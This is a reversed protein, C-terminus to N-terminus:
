PAGRTFTPSLAVHKLVAKLDGQSTTAVDWLQRYLDREDDRFRLERGMLLRFQMAIMRRVFAEKKVAKTSFAEIGTGKYPYTEVLAHDSDDIPQGQEDMTRYTGDDAWKLRQHALPTLLQHCTYCLSTPDVTSTATATGRQDFVEPPVEFVTGMFGSLVRAPYNYHPLGPKSGVYGKMTLVGTKGHEAPRTQKAGSADVTFDADLIRAFPLRNVVVHTWLRAPEDSDATGQSEIRLQVRTFYYKEFDPSALAADVFAPYGQTSLVDFEEATPPRGLLHQSLGVAILRERAAGTVSAFSPPVTFLFDPHRVIAECVGSWAETQTGGLVALDRLLTYTTGQEAANAPRFLLRQFLTDIAAKAATSRGTGTGQGLPGTITFRDLYVNRDGGAVAPNNYDNIYSVTIPQRGAATIRIVVSQEVYQAQDTFTLPMSVQVAGLRVDIKPGNGGDDNDAKARVTVRYDGPALADYDATLDCNTYCFFGTPNTSPSGVGTRNGINVTEAEFTTTTEAPVDIIPAVVDIGQFPGTKASAARGCVDPALQDLGLLFEPTSARAEVFNSRFNVGGFLGINKDFRDETAGAGGDPLAAARHWDDNFVSAVKSKLQLYNIFTNDYDGNAGGDWASLLEPPFQEDAALGGSQELGEIMCSVRAVAEIQAKTWAPLGQPMRTRADANTLRSVFSGPQDKFWNAARLRHFTETGDETVVFMRSSNTGHCAICGREAGVVTPHVQTTYTEVIAELRIGVYDAPTCSLDPAPGMEDPTSGGTVEGILGECGSTAALLGVLLVRRM